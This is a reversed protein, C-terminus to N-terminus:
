KKFVRIVESKDDNVIKLFYSGSELGVTQVVKTKGLSNHTTNLEQGNMSILQFSATAPLNEISFSDVFPNPYTIVQDKFEDANLVSYIEFSQEVITAAEFNDDGNQTARVTVFGSDQFKLMDGELEAPGEIEYSVPLGSSSSATLLVSSEEFSADAIPGFTIVQGKKIVEFETSVPEAVNYIDNGTQSATVIVSGIGTFELVEGKLTAPGVVEYSIPLESSSSAALKIYQEGIWIDQIDEFSILQDAKAVELVRIVTNAPNFDDNGIQNVSIQTIGMGVILLENDGSVLAVDPNSSSYEVDLGSSSTGNMLFTSNIDTADIEDLEFAITQDSKLFNWGTVNGLDQSAYANFTAGGTAIIDQLAVFRVDVAGISKEITAPLGEVNSKIVIRDEYTGEAILSEFSLDISADIELAVGSHIKLESLIPSNTLISHDKTVVFSDAFAVDFDEGNINTVGGESHIILSEASVFEGLGITSSINIDKTYITSGTFDFRSNMVVSSNFTEVYISHGNTKFLPTSGGGNGELFISKASLSDGLELTGSLIRLRIDTDKLSVQGPDFVVTELELPRIWLTPIEFSMSEGLIISGRCNLASTSERYFRPADSGTWDMGPVDTIGGVDFTVTQGSQSFSNEDFFARDNVNPYSDHFENGGSTKAWHNEYDSWNGSGGVWYYDHQAFAYFPSALIAFVFVTRFKLFQHRM